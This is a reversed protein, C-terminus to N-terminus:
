RAAVKPKLHKAALKRSTEKKKELAEAEAKEKKLRRREQDAKQARLGSERLEAEFEARKQAMEERKQKKTAM